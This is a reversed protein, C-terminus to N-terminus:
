FWVRIGALPGQMAVDGVRRYEYGAYVQVGRFVAGVTVQALASPAKYLTGYDVRASVTFPQVPFIEIDATINPGTAYERHGQGPTRGDIMYQAGGGVRVRMRPRMIVTIRANTSGLYMADRFRGEVLWDLDSGIGLRWYDFDLGFGTKWVNKGLYGTEINLQTSWMRGREDKEKQPVRQVLGDAGNHYPTRNYRGVTPWQPTALM